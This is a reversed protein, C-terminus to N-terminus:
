PSSAVRWLFQRRFQNREHFTQLLLLFLQLGWPRAVCQAFLRVRKVRNRPGGASNIQLPQASRSVSISM